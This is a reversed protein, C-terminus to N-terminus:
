FNNNQSILKLYNTENEYINSVSIGTCVLRGGNLGYNNANSSM